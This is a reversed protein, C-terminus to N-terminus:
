QKKISIISAGPIQPPLSRTMIPNAALTVEIVQGKSFDAANFEGEVQKSAVNLIVGEENIGKAIEQPDDVGEVETILFSVNEGDVTVDEKLVGKIVAQEEVESSASSAASSDKVSSVESSSGEQATNGSGCATLSVVAAVLVSFLWIKRKM